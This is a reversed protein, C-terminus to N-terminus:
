RSSCNGKFLEWGLFATEFAQHFDAVPQPVLALLAALVGRKM